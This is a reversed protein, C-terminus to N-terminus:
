QAAQGARMAAWGLAKIAGLAVEDVTAHESLEGLLDAVRRLTVADPPYKQLLQAVLTREDVSIPWM